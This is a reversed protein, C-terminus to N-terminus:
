RFQEAFRFTSEKQSRFCLGFPMEACTVLVSALLDKLSLRFIPFIELLITLIFPSKRKAAVIYVFNWPNEGKIDSVHAQELFRVSM